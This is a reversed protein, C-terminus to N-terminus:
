LQEKLKQIKKEVKKAELNTKLDDMAAEGSRKRKETQIRKAELNTKLDDLVAEGSRKRKESKRFIWFFRKGLIPPLVVQTLVVILVLLVFLPELLGWISM